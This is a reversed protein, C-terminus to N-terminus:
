DISWGDLAADFATQYTLIRNPDKLMISYYGAEFFIIGHGKEGKVFSFNDTPLPRNGSLLAISEVFDNLWAAIGYFGSGEEKLGVVLPKLQPYQQLVANGIQRDIEESDYCGAFSGGKIVIQTAERSHIMEMAQRCGALDLTCNLLQLLEGIVQPYETVM